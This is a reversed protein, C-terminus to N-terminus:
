AKNKLIYCRNEEVDVDIRDPLFIFNFSALLKISAKNEKHTFAIFQKLGLKKSYSIVASIAESMYGKRWFAPLLEYGLESEKEVWNINWVSIAGILEHNEKSEILWYHMLGEGNLVIIKYLFDRADSITEPVKRKIFRNIETNSRLGLIFPLDDGTAPRLKLRETFLEPTEEM